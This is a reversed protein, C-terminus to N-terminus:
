MHTTKEFFYTLNLTWFHWNEFNTVCVYFGSKRFKINKLTLFITAVFKKFLIKKIPVEIPKFRSFKKLKKSNLVSFIWKVGLLPARIAFSLIGISEATFFIYKPHTPFNKQRFQLVNMLTTWLSFLRYFNILSFNIATDMFFFVNSFIKGM